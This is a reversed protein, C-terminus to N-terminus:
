AFYKASENHDMREHMRMTHNKVSSVVRVTIKERANFTVQSFIEVAYLHRM